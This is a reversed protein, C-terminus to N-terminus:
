GFIYRAGADTLRLFYRSEAGQRQWNVAEAFVERVQWDALIKAIGNTQYFVEILGEKVQMVISYRARELAEGNGGFLSWAYYLSVDGGSLDDLLHIEESM